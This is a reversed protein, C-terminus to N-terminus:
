ISLTPLTECYKRKRQVRLLIKEHKIDTFENLVEGFDQVGYVEYSWQTLREKIEKFLSTDDEILLIEINTYTQHLISDVCEKLYKEVKYIPVVVSIIDSM